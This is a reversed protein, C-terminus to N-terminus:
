PKVFALILIVGGITCLTSLDRLGARMRMILYYFLLACMCLRFISSLREDVMKEFKKNNTYEAIYGMLKKKM